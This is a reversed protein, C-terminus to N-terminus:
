PRKSGGGTLLRIRMRAPGMTSDKALAERYSALSGRCLETRPAPPRPAPRKVRSPAVLASGPPASCARAPVRGRPTNRLARAHLRGWGRGGAGRDRTGLDGCYLHGIVASSSDRDFSSALATSAPPPATTAIWARRRM